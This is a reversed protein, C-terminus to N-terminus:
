NCSATWRREPEGVAMRSSDATQCIDRSHLQNLASSLADQCSYPSSVILDQDGRPTNDSKDQCAVRFRVDFRAQPISPRAPASCQPNKFSDMYANVASPGAQRILSVARGNHANTQCAIVANFQDGTRCASLYAAGSSQPDTACWRAHKKWEDSSPAAAPTTTPRYCYWDYMGGPAPTRLAGLYGAGYQESCVQHVNISAYGPFCRWGYGTNNINLVGTYGHRKCYRDLDMGQAFLNGTYLLVLVTVMNALGFSIKV